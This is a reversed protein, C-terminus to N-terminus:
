SGKREILKWLTEPDLKLHNQIRIWVERRGEILAHTRADPHFTTDYARCFKALDALVALADQNEPAFTRQYSAQRGFVFDRVREVVSRKREIENMRM